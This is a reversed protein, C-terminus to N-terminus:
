GAMVGPLPVTGPANLGPLSPMTAGGGMPGGPAPPRQVSMGNAAAVDQYAMPQGNPGTATGDAAIIIQPGLKEAIKQRILGPLIYQEYAQNARRKAVVEDANQKGEYEEAYEEPTLGVRADNLMARGHEQLTIREASSSAEIDVTIDLTRIRKPEVGVVTDYDVKGNDTRAYVWVPEGFGGDEAELSMVQAMNRAMTAIARGINRLYLKPEVNQQAQEIRATWPQTSTSIEAQGTAPATKDFEETLYRIGEVFAPNVEFELQAIEYGPPPQMANAANRTFQVIKGKEDLMPGGDSTRKLYYFPLAVSEGLTLFLSVARDVTPKQRYMGELAPEWRLAPDTENREMAAAIAFPPMGYPHECSKVLTWATGNEVACLEYYEDRTWIEALQIRTGWDTGSPQYEAPAEREVYIRLHEEMQNLSVMIQNHKYLSDAYDVLGVERLVMAMGLGNELSRDELYFFQDPQLVEVMWPFGAKARSHKRREAFAEAREKYRKVGREKYGRRDIYDKRDAGEPLEDLEEAEPLKPWVHDAMRWHLVGYCYHILGDALAGQIDLGTRDELYGLGSNFVTELDNADKRQTATDRIPNCRIVYRNELLRSKLQVGIQRLRDSQFKHGEHYPEPLEVDVAEDNHLHLRRSGIKDHLKRFQTVLRRKADANGSDRFRQVLKEIIKQCAAEDLTRVEIGKEAYDEAM